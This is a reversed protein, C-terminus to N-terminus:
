DSGPDLAFRGISGLLYDTQKETVIWRRGLSQSVAGTTNSGGFPDFVLDGPETLLNVLIEVLQSQMRAPHPSVGNLECYDRYSKPSSTNGLSFVSARISGGRDTLFGDESVKHESPREGPNYTGRALLQRMADSYPQLARQNDSKPYPTRSYWWVHTYSDKLRIKRVTVWPAPSPLRATNHCIMQQCVVLNGATAFDILTQLPLVSMEPSGKCWVNGIEMVLSGNPTLLDALRPALSCLWQRYEDGVANGYKKPAVLPFPPSTLILNVKGKLNKGTSSDLFDEISTQFARGVVRKGSGTTKYALGDVDHEWWDQDIHIKM